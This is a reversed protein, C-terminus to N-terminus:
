PAEKLPRAFLRSTAEGNANVLTIKLLNRNTTATETRGVYDVYNTHLAVIGSPLNTRVYERLTELKNTDANNTNADHHWVVLNEMAAQLALGEDMQTRPEHSKLFVNGLFPLIAAMAITSLVITVIVEILTFGAPATKSKGFGCAHVSCGGRGAPAAVLSGGVQLQARQARGGDARVQELRRDKM